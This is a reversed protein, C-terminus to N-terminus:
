ASSDRPKHVDQRERIHYGRPGRIRGRSAGKPEPWGLVEREACALLEDNM